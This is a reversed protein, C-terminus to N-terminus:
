LNVRTNVTVMTAGGTTGSAFNGGQNSNFLNETGTNATLNLVVVRGGSGSGGGSGGGPAEGGTYTGNGGAGGNGGSVDILGTVATGTLAGYAVYVWGGSAGGGGGGGGAQGTTPTGGAGGSGGMAQITSAVSTSSSRNITAASIFVMNGGAGGGGGGGGKVTNDGTGGGGGSAGSGMTLLSAGRLFNTTFRRISVANTPYATAGRSGGGGLHAGDGGSGADGIYSGQNGSNANGGNGGAGVNGTGGVGGAVGAGLTNSTGAGGASGGVGLATGAGGNAGNNQIAGVPANTLDLIGAIFVFYGNTVLKGTGSMTLNNYYMDNSLTTTGSSITVNGDQGNGFYLITPLPASPTAWKVGLTQTSDATLVQNNTGVPIRANVTSFGFIDGKTTLPLAVAPPTNWTGDARLFNTTGGGSATVVGPHTSDFPQLNLVQGTLTAANANPSAGVAALTVDGSNTGTLNLMTKVQAVTLDAVDATGGTNNGKLTLTPAQTLKGNTVAHAAITTAFSGTGSGTVDSTLTITQDGSNTGALNLLTKTQAVTLDAANATSGTNNGKITNAPMQSLNSNAVVNTGTVSGSTTATSANGSLDASITGASFNGSADRKVITNLTNLNTAANAALEASHINAASSGDVSVVTAVQSGFGPGATVEGTLQEIGDGTPVGWTGNANLYKGATADGAAPAPVLGKVGGSGSDGVFNDLMATVQAATLDEPTGTTGTNNGKITGAAMPALKGNDIQGFVTIWSSVASEYVYLTDTDKAIALDNNNATSPFDLATPYSPVGFPYSFERFISHM